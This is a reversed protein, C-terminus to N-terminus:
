NVKKHSEISYITLDCMRKARQKEVNKIFGNKNGVSVQTKQCAIVWRPRFSYLVMFFRCVINELPNSFSCDDYASSLLAIVQREYTANNRKVAM